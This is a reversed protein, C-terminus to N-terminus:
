RQLIIDTDPLGAAAIDRFLHDDMGIWVFRSARAAGFIQAIFGKIEM